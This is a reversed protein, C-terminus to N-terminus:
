KLQGNATNKEQIFGMGGIFFNALLKRQYSTPRSFTKATTRNM